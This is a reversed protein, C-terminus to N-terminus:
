AAVPATPPSIAELAMIAAGIIEKELNNTVSDHWGKLLGLPSIAAILELKGGVFQLEVSANEGLPFKVLETM